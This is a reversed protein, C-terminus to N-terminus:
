ASDRSVIRVSTVARTTRANPGSGGLADLLLTASRHGIGRPDVEVTTLSPWCSAAVEFDGFGAVAVRGPVAWGNRHCAAIAGMAALDSVCLVADTDPWRQMLLAMAEAGHSPGIPPEGHDVIRPEGLKLRAIARTYGARRDHGRLDRGSAGGIFGIRRYGRAALHRVMKGAAAANSFGVVMGLPDRPLDWTEVVLAPSRSLADRTTKLHDGGTLVVAEPRHRLMARVVEAERELSYDTYGLLVQLGAGALGDSLGRVTEAFNSNALTPVLVAVFSSRGSSLAGAGADPVYDVAEIAAMIRARTADSVGGGTLARSVTMKSVGAIRAVDAMTPAVSPISKATPDKVVRVSCFGGRRFLPGGARSPM